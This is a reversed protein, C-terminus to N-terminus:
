YPLIVLSTTTKAVCNGSLGTMDLVFRFALMRRLLSLRHCLMLSPCCAFFSVLFVPFPMERHVCVRDHRLLFPLSRALLEEHLLLGQGAGTVRQGGLAPPHRPQSHVLLVLEVSGLALYAQNIQELAATLQDDIAGEEFGPHEAPGLVGAAAAGQAGILDGVQGM